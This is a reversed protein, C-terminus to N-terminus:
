DLSRSLRRGHPVAIHQSEIASQLLEDIEADEYEDEDCFGGINSKRMEKGTALWLEEAEEDDGDVENGEEGGAGLNCALAREAPVDSGVDGGDEREGGKEKDRMAERAKREQREINGYAEWEKREQEHKEWKVADYACPPCLGHIKYKLRQTVTGCRDDQQGHHEAAECTDTSVAPDTWKHNCGIFLAYYTICM